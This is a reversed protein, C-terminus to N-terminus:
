KKLDLTKHGEFVTLITIINKDIKYIIRYNKVIIERINDINLEPIIRGRKPYDKISEVKEILFDIFKEARNINDISIYEEIELLKSLAENTWFIKM